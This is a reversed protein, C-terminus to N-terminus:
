TFKFVAGVFDQAEHEQHFFYILHDLIKLKAFTGVKISESGLEVLVVPLDNPIIEHFDNSLKLYVVIMGLDQAWVCSMKIGLFGLGQVIFSQLGKARQLM